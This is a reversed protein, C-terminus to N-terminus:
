QRKRGVFLHVDSCRNKFTDYIQRDYHPYYLLYPEDRIVEVNSNSCEMRIKSWEIHDDLWVHIDGEEAYRPELTKRIRRKWWGLSLLMSVYSGISIKKHTLSKFETLTASPSWLEEAADHDLYLIGGPKLVRIMERIALLYDPIHHLVSYAAIMDFTNENIEALDTGNLIFPEIRTSDIDAAMRAFSPTVDAAIVRLGLDIMHKTLNGAGCVYDMALTGQSRMSAVAAQLSLRLRSQEIDNYIESHRQDYKSAIKEHLDINQQILQSETLKAKSM